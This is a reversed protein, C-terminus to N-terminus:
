FNNSSIQSNPRIAKREIIKNDEVLVLARNSNNIINLFIHIQQIELLLYKLEANLKLKLLYQNLNNIIM